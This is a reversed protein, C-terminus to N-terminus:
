ACDIIVCNLVSCWGACDGWVGFHLGYGACITGGLKWLAGVAGCGGVEWAECNAAGQCIIQPFSDRCQVRICNEALISGFGSSSNSVICFLLFISLKPVLDIPSIIAIGNIWSM